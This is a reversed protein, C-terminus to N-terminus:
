ALLALAKEFEIIRDRNLQPRMNLCETRMARLENAYNGYFEITEELEQQKSIAVRPGKSSSRNMEGVIIDNERITKEAQALMVLAKKEVEEYKTWDIM